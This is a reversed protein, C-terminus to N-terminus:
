SPSCPTPRKCCGCHDGTGTLRLIGGGLLPYLVPREVVAPRVVPGEDYFHWKIATTLGRGEAMSRAIGAYEAADPAFNVGGLAPLRLALSLMVLLL